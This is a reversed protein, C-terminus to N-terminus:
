LSLGVQDRQRQQGGSRLRLACEAGCRLLREQMPGDGQRAVGPRGVLLQQASRLGATGTGRTKGAPTDGNVTGRTGKVVYTGADGKSFKALAEDQAFLDDCAILGPLDDTSAVETALPGDFPDDAFDFTETNLPARKDTIPYNVLGKRESTM